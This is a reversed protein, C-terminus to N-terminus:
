RRRRALARAENASMARRGKKEQKKEQEEMRKTWGEEGGHEWLFKALQSGRLFFFFGWLFLYPLFLPRLDLCLPLCVEKHGFQAALMMPTPGSASGANVDGGRDMLLQCLEQVGDMAAIHLPTLGDLAPANPDAGKELLPAVMSHCQHVAVHLCSFNWEVQLMCPFLPLISGCGGPQIQSFLM